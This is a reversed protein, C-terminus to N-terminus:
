PLFGPGAFVNNKLDLDFNPDFDSKPNLKSVGFFLFVIEIEIAIEIFKFEQLPLHAGCLDVGQQAFQVFV